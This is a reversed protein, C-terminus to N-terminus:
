PEQMPSGKETAFREFAFHRILEHKMQLSSRFVQDTGAKGKLLRLPARAQLKASLFVVSGFATFRMAQIPQIFQHTIATVGPSIHTLSRRKRQNCYSRQGQA